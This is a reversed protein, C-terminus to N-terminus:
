LGLLQKKKMDFEEQSIVGSDLLDKFKKIEDAVSITNQTGSAVNRNFILQEIYNKIEEAIENCKSTFSVTNEDTRADMMGHRSEKGGIVGFQIYGAAVFNASHYQVSTISSVPISKEGAFGHYMMAGFGKRTITIRDEYVILQGDSGNM